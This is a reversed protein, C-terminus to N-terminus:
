QVLLRRSSRMGEATNVTVVYTGPAIGGLDLVHRDTLQGSVELVRKGTMDHMTIAQMRSNGQLVVQHTAPNSSFGFGPDGDLELLGSTDDMYALTQQIFTAQAAITAMASSNFLTSMVNYGGPVYHYVMSPSGALTYGTPGMNYIPQVNELPLVADAWWLTTFQWVLPTAFSASVAPDVDMQAVGLGGDDGYTQAVYIEIGMVDYPTQGATFTVPAGAYMAYLLDQGIIWLKKGTQAYQVVDTEGNWFALDTGDSGCFWIVADYANLQAFTPPNGGQTAVHYIQYNVGAATLANMMTTDQVGYETDCVYLLNQAQATSGAWTCAALVGARVM